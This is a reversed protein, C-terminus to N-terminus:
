FCDLLEKFEVSNRNMAVLLGDKDFATMADNGFQFYESYNKLLYTALHRPIGINQLEIVKFDTTGYELFEGWNEGANEVGLKYVLIDYYNSFYNKLKFRLFSDVDSILNNIVLNIHYQNRSNFRVLENVDWIEGIKQHYEISTSIMRSLPTSEMWNSMLVAFYKLSSKTKFMPARGGTEETEWSYFDWLIDLRRLVAEYSINTSLTKTDLSEDVCVKNQYKAKIMSYSSLIKEPVTIEDSKTKLLKAMQESGGVFGSRLVSNDARVEHILAINAYHNWIDKQDQSASKSTFDSGTLACELNKFFNKQGNIVLPKLPKIDKTRVVALDKELNDWRNGKDEIRACIINGSLDKSLRGARGALNWFDIDSFKAKGIANSLIFINKAPLNVGELLTSTCFLYDIVKAVFLAEIKVRIRQPLSGFHFAVGKRLCDILYYREHLHEKIITIVEDIDENSKDPLTSSFELAFAITDRRTNCYVVSSHGDNLKVLWHFFNPNAYDLQLENEQNFDSFFICRKDVLDLYYRNQSVPSSKISVAEDTSKEFLQLFVEPNPINPSAFYLKISKREAQLIAHYYLPSRSDKESIVKQAEDIFLYGIKPNSTDSLYAVLREPTFIFIYREGETSYAKPITPHSLVKYQQIHAFDKKLTILNQNVLARTPVLVIINENVQEQIILNRIFANLIFSKGLSTPGSFSYHNNNKLSEFVKYQDDTFIFESDPIQQYAEKIFKEFVLELSSNDSDEAYRDIFQLAPFNGLKVLVSSAFMRFLGDKKYRDALLSIIKYAKNKADPNKSRSLIDAFRLLDVFKKEELPERELHFFDFAALEEAGYFLKKFYDDDLSKQSLEELFNM